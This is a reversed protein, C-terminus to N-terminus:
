STERTVGDLGSAAPRALPALLQAQLMVDHAIAAARSSEGGHEIVFAAAYRPTDEPAFCIFLGHDREIWPVLKYRGLGITRIKLHRAQATGTKGAMAFQPEIIRQDYATGYPNSTVLKMASLVLEVHARNFGLPTHTPRALSQPMDNAAMVAPNRVMRPTVGHGGNSLRATMVALQLPTTLVYGQGIGAILTEGPEWPRGLTKEKWSPTPILGPAEGPLDIGTPSGLGFRRAMHAINMIGTRHAVNYFYVDCSQEIAGQLGIWGHGGLKWCHFVADGLKYYGPCFFKTDPQIAGCELGAMAVVPKFTSGPPFQGTIALDNLPHRHDDNLQRWEANTIGLVFDNPNYSPVSAMALVDCTAADLVVGAAVRHAALRQSLFSQLRADITLNINCGPTGNNRELERVERGMANVEVRRYGAKGRLALDYQKEIGTKGVQFGPLELLPDNQVNKQTPAGVYGLIHALETGLPYHRTLGVGLQVGPLSPIRVNISAFQQWTLHSAVTVPIFADREGILREINRRQEADIPLMDSLKDLTAGVDDTQEPLLLVRYNRRNTALEAGFRDFIRGRIPVIFRLSISNDRALLKYKSAQVVELDYLRGVLIGILGIQAGGILVARRTLVKYRDADRRDM